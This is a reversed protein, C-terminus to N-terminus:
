WLPAQYTRALSHGDLPPAIKDLDLGFRDLIAPTIDARTGRRIVKPDNTALFVYPADHHSNLGEDFGHDATVYILTKDYLNLEALKQMVKGTWADASILADNYEKSNEGFKHGQHDVEAFHVFFFFPRSKYQELLELTKSGVKKDEGLGNMFFDM